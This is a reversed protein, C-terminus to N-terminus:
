RQIGLARLTEYDVQGVPLGNDKQFQVLAAKTRPGLQNDVAGVDYGREILARQIQSNLQPTFDKGCVVERWETFGGAKVLQRKSVTRYEAPIETTRTTPASTKTYSRNEYKAETTSAETTAPTVLKRYSRTTYRADGTSVNAAADNALKQYSITTYKAEGNQSETTADNVLKQYSVTGYSADGTTVNATADNVLKQYSITTYTVDGSGINVTQGTSTGNAVLEVRRNQARGAASDNSAIPSNEGQGDYSLRSSSVGAAVLADYVAKARNRSLAMNSDAGGQSDTHGVIRGSMSPDAAMM